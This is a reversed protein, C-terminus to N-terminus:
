LINIQKLTFTSLKSIVNYFSLSEHRYEITFCIQVNTEVTVNRISCDCLCHVGKILLYGHLQLNNLTLNTIEHINFFNQPKSFSLSFTIGAEKSFM